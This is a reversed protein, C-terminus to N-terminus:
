ILFYTWVCVFLTGIQMVVKRVANKRMFFTIPLIFSDQQKFINYLSIGVLM